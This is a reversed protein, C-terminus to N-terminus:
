GEPSKRVEFVLYARNVVSTIRRFAYQAKGTRRAIFSDLLVFPHLTSNHPVFRRDKHGRTRAQVRGPCVQAMFMPGNCISCM